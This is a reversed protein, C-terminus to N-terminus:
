NYIKEKISNRTLKVIEEVTKDKPNIEDLITVSMEGSIPFTKGYPMLEYAGKIAFPVVSIELEKSLIAFTKKFDQLEGDRTRAGEPFIVLNKGEKLVKAAIKLTEKLNKNVDVLIINGNEALYKKLKGEFHINIALFYTNKLVEKPLTQGFAFADLMSQHNGVYIVPSNKQLKDTNKQLKVYLNFFPKLLNVTTMVYKSTPMKLEVPEEFIKKWNIEKEEFNGGKERIYQCLAEVTKIRSFDEESINVGYTNQIFTIIEVVDLSDLGLDIELHSEPIIQIEDHLTGIFKSMVKFEQTNLEKSTSVKKEVVKEAVVEESDGKKLSIGKLLDKLMFRRLKGLKTKPLEEKVIVIDLIKRYKPATINYKDIVEWKIAEKANAIKKEELVKFNPYVIAILHKENETVAVEQILDTNKMIEVEIDSPNINKGNSLVIMEKKRGIIKLHDGDFQGLDGTHFWGENDIAEATAEPKNYYGKMVNRGKVVIEGDDELKIKVGPLATGVTGAVNNDLRNFSIIPSTETLGYGELMTFGFTYFDECIEKDLKAGGSVLFRINGGFAEQIKKFIIKNLSMINLSKCIKFLKYTASSSKIKGLIGKHFMEWVRPVGIVVTIKYKQLNQKIAESSLEDLIVVLSGFNLPMLVTFSLPLIHHFPLLALIRDEATVMKIEKIADVNSMINDYTLMVGKPNGTTGSTYLMVAVDEKELCEVSVKEIVIDKSLDIEDVNLIIIDSKSKEKAEEANKINENSTIIYKPNSDNFVYVLQESGYSADLNTCTGKKDWIGLVAGMYEPRNEMYIAVRDEKNVNLLSSYIKAMKILEYYSYEKDKFIVATKKRDYIFDM